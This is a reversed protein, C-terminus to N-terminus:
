FLPDNESKWAPRDRLRLQRRGFLCPMKRNAKMVVAITCSDPKLIAECWDPFDVPQKGHECCGVGVPEFCVCQFCQDNLWSEGIDFRQGNHECTAIPLFSLSLYFGIRAYINFIINM